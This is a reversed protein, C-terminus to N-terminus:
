EQIAKDAAAFLSEADTEFTHVLMDKGFLSVSVRRM